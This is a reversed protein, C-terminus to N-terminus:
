INNIISQFLPDVHSNRKEETPTHSIWDKILQEYYAVKSPHFEKAYMLKSKLTDLYPCNAVRLKASGTNHGNHYHMFLDYYKTTGDKTLESYPNNYIGMIADNFGNIFQITM